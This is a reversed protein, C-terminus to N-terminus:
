FWEFGAGVMPHVRWRSVVPEASSDTVVDYHVRTLDVEVGLRLEFRAAPALRVQGVVGATLLPSQQVSTEQADFRERDIAEPVIWTTDLGAGVAAGLGAGAAVGTDLVRAEVRWALTRLQLAVRADQHRQPLQYQVGVTAGIQTHASLWDLGLRLGPGHMVPIETSHVSVGYFSAAEPLWGTSRRRWASPESRVPPSVVTPRGQRQRQSSDETGLLSRAQARTLADASRDALARLSWEMAQALAERDMEDMHGSLELTRVLFRTGSRNAFYLRALRPDTTDVWVHIGVRSDFRARFLEQPDFRSATAFHVAFAARLQPGLADSLQSSSLEPGIVRIEVRTREAPTTSSSSPSEDGAPQARAEVVVFAALLVTPVVAARRCPAWPGCGVADASSRSGADRTLAIRLTPTSGCWGNGTGRRRKLEVWPGSHRAEAM